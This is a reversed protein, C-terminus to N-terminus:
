RAYWERLLDPGKVELAHNTKIVMGPSVQDGDPDSINEFVTLDAWFLECKENVCLANYEERGDDKIALIVGQQVEDWWRIVPGHWHEMAEQPPMAFPPLKHWMTLDREAMPKERWEVYEPGESEHQTVIYRMEYVKGDDPDTWEFESM